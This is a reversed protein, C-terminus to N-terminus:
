RPAQLIQNRNIIRHLVSRTSQANRSHVEAWKRGTTAQRLKIDVPVGPIPVRIRIQLVEIRNKLIRSIRGSNRTRVADFRPNIDALLVHIVCLDSRILEREAAPHRSEVTPWLDVLEVAIRIKEQAQRAIPAIRELRESHALQPRPIVSEVELVRPLDRFFQRHDVTSRPLVEGNGSM